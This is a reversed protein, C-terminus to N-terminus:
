AVLGNLTHYLAQSTDITLAKSRKGSRSKGMKRFMEAKDLLTQLRPDNVDEIVAELPNRRREDKYRSRVNLIKWMDTVSCILEATDELEGRNSFSPHSRLATYTEDCFVKLCTSVKQREIPKPRVAVGNLLSLGRTGSDNLRAKSEEEHLEILHNWKAMKDIGDDGKFVLEGNKETLWNNRISKIVHVFDFLLYIGDTTLWPKGPM